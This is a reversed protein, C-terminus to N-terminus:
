SRAITGAAEQSRGTGRGTGRRRALAGDEVALRQRRRHLEEALRDHAQPQPMRPRARQHRDLEVVDGRVARRLRDRGGGHVDRDRALGRELQRQHRGAPPKRGAVPDPDRDRDGVPGVQPRQRLDRRELDGRRNLQLQGAERGVGDGKLGGVLWQHLDGLGPRLGRRRECHSTTVSTSVPRAPMTVEIRARSAIGASPKVTVSDPLRTAIVPSSSGVLASTLPM